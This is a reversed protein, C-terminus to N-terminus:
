VTQIKLFCAEDQFFKQQLGNTGAKRTDAHNMSASEVRVLMMRNQLFVNLSPKARAAHAAVHGCVGRRSTAVATTSGDIYKQPLSSSRSGRLTVVHFSRSDR